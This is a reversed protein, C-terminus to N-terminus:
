YDESFKFLGPCGCVCLVCVCWWSSRSNFKQKTKPHFKGTIDDANILSFHVLRFPDLGKTTTSPGTTRVADVDRLEQLNVSRRAVAAAAPRERKEGQDRDGANTPDRQRAGGKGSEGLSLFAGGGEPTRSYCLCV